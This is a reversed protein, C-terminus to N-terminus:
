AFNSPHVQAVFQRQVLYRLACAQRAVRQAFPDPLGLLVNCRWAVAPLPHGGLQIRKMGRKFQRELGVRVADLLVPAGALRQKRLDLRLAVRAAVAPDGIENAIPVTTFGIRWM